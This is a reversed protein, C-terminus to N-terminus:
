WRISDVYYVYTRLANCKDVILPHTICSGLAIQDVDPVSAFSCLHFNQIFIFPLNKERYFAIITKVASLLTVFTEEKRTRKKGIKAKFTKQHCSTHSFQSSNLHYTAAPCLFTENKSLRLPQSGEWRQFTRFTSKRRM